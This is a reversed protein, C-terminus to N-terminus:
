QIKEVKSEELAPIMYKIVKHLYDGRILRYDEAIQPIYVFNFGALRFENSIARYHSRIYVDTETNNENEIYLVKMNEIFSSGSPISFVQGRGELAYKVAMIQLAELPVCTGDSLSM